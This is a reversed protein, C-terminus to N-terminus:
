KGEKAYKAVRSNGSGDAVYLEGDPGIAVDAPKNFLDTALGPKDKQGLTLLLKGEPTFKQVLHNAMDAIWLHDDKDIRLGHPTKFLGNWSRLFKGDKDFVLVYPKIRNLIYVNDKSDTAVASVGGLQVGEPLTPWNAVQRYELPPKKEGTLATTGAVICVALLLIFLQLSVRNKKM